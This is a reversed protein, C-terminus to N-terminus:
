RVAGELTSAAPAAHEALRAIAISRDVEDRVTQSASGWSELTIVEFPGSIGRLAAANTTSVAIVVRRPLGRARRWKEVDPLVGRVVYRTPM